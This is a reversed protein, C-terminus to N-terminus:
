LLSSSERFGKLIKEKLDEQDEAVPQTDIDALIHDILVGQNGVWHILHPQAQPNNIIEGKSTLYNGNEDQFPVGSRHLAVIEWQDNAVLSGSSGRETDTTYHIYPKETSVVTVKNERFAIMKPKGEPHQIINLSDGLNIKGKSSYLANLPYKNLLIEPDNAARPELAVITYDLKPSTLFFSDPDAKFFYTKDNIERNRNEFEFQAWFRRASTKDEIVHNNTMMLAPGVLFGTGMPQITQLGNGYVVRCVSNAVDLGRRLFDVDMLNNLGILRELGIKDIGPDLNLHELREETKEKGNLANYDDVSKIGRVKQDNKMHTEKSGSFDANVRKLLDFLDPM